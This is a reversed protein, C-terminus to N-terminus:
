GKLAAKAALPPMHNYSLLLIGSLALCASALWGRIALPNTIEKFWCIGWLGTVLMSSQTLSIGVGQGLHTAALIAAMNGISWLLGSSFGPVAMIKFHFSPMAQWAAVMDHRASVYNYYFRAVWLLLNIIGAGVAFSFVYNLGKMDEEAYHLPVLAAAGWSAGLAVTIIGVQRVPIDVDCEEALYKSIMSAFAYAGNGDPPAHPKQRDAKRKRYKCDDYDEGDSKSPSSAKPIPSGLNNSNVTVMSARPVPTLDPNGIIQNEMDVIPELLVIEAPQQEDDSESVSLNLKMMEVDDVQKTVDKNVLCTWSFCYMKASIEGTNPASFFSMGVIGVIMVLIALCASSLSLVREQFVFIGWCFSVMVTMSSSTAATIALGATRASVVYAVGAPVWFFGSLLGLPTFRLHEVGLFLVSFSSIMCLATKYTQFVLPDVDVARVAESKMPVSFSGFALCSVMAALYGGATASLLM